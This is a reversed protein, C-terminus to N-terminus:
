DTRWEYSLIPLIAVVVGLMGIASVSYWLGADDLFSAHGAERHSAAILAIIIGALGSSGCGGVFGLWDEHRDRSGQRSLDKEVSAFAVSYAILLGVGVQALTWLLEASPQSCFLGVSVTLAGGLLFIGGIASAFGKRM